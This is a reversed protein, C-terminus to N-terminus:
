LVSTKITKMGVDQTFCQCKGNVFNATRNKNSLCSNCTHDKHVSAKEAGVISNSTGNKNTSCACSKTFRSGEQCDTDEIDLKVDRLVEKSDVTEYRPCREWGRRINRLHRALPPFTFVLKMLLVIFPLISSLFTISKWFKFGPKLWGPGGMIAVHAVSMTLVFTGLKSQVCSWEAWNLSESVSPISTLAVVSMLLFATIGVLCAAEGKWIMWTRTVPLTVDDSTVNVDAPITVTAHHFWSSYYTPSLMLVSAIVHALVLFYSILGLQKRSKLWTDLVRPFRKHKTGNYVQLVAAIQGTPM